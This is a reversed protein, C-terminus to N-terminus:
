KPMLKLAEEFKRNIEETIGAAEMLLNYVNDIKKDKAKGAWDRYTGAHEKNHKTWHMLLKSMKQEFSLVTDNEDAHHDHHHSM